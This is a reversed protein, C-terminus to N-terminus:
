AVKTFDPARKEFFAHFAEAAEPSRVQEAFHRTEDGIQAALQEAHPGKLLQKILHLASQPKASLQAAVAEAAKLAAPGDASVETVLGYQLAKAASFPEGLMLLEAARLYGIQMPLLLSSGAEPLLALNVFPLQFRTDEAACVFDCHLLMTTGIGVAAGSVAAVLPKNARSIATIFRGVPSDEGVPPSQVFDKLDNGSTFSETHGHILVVRVTPDRDAEQLASTMQEYMGLTLANRKEPRNIQLRLVPGELNTLIQM